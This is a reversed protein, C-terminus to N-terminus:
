QAPAHPQVQVPEDTVRGYEESAFAQLGATLLIAIAAVIAVFTKM